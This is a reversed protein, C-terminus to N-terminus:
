FYIKLFISIKFIFSDKDFKDLFDSIRQFQQVKQFNKRFFKMKTFFIEFYLFIIKKLNFQFKEILIVMQCAYISYTEFSDHQLLMKLGFSYIPCCLHSIHMCPMNKMQAVGNVVKSQHHESPIICQHTSIPQNEFYIKRV